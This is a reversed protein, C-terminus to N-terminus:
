GVSARYQVSYREIFQYVTLVAVKWTLLMKVCKDVVLLFFFFNFVLSVVIKIDEKM